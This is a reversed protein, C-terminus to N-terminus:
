VRLLQKTCLYAKLFLFHMLIIMINSIAFIDSSILRDFHSLIYDNWTYIPISLASFFLLGSIIWFSPEQRIDNTPPDKFLRYFYFISLITKSINVISLIHFNPRNTNIFKTFILCILVTLTGLSLVKIRDENKSLIMSFFVSWFILEGVFLYFQIKYGIEFSYFHFIKYSFTNLSMFLGLLPFLYFHRMYNRSCYYKSVLLACFLSIFIVVSGTIVVIFNLEGM